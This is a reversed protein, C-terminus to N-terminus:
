FGISEMRKKRRRKPKSGKKGVMLSTMPVGGIGGRASLMGWGRREKILEEEM